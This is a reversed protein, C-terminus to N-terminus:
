CCVSPSPPKGPWRTPPCSFKNNIYARCSMCGAPVWFPKRSWRPWRTSRSFVMYPERSIAWGACMWTDKCLLFIFSCSFCCFTTVSLQAAFYAVEAAFWDLGQQSCLLLDEAKDGEEAAMICVGVGVTSHWTEEPTGPGQSAVSGEAFSLPPLPM